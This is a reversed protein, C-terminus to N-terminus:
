WLQNLRSVVFACIVRSSVQAALYVRMRTFSTLWVHDRTLKYCLRVGPTTTDTETLYLHEIAKWSISQGSKQLFYLVTANFNPEHIYLDNVEM